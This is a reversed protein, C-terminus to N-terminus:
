GTQALVPPNLKGTQATSAVCSGAATRYAAAFSPLADIVDFLELKREIRVTIGEHTFEDVINLM